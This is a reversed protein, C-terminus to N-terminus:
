KDNEKRKEVSFGGLRYVTGSAECDGELRLYGGTKEGDHGCDAYVRSSFVQEGGNVFIELSSVDSFIQLKELKGLAGHRRTRGFGGEEM